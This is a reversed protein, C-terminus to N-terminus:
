LQFTGLTVGKVEVRIWEPDYRRLLPFRKANGSTTIIRICDDTDDQATLYTQEETPAITLELGAQDTVIDIFISDASGTSKNVFGLDPQVTEESHCAVLTIAAIFFLFSKM